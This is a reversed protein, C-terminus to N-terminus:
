VTLATTPPGVTRSLAIGPLVTFSQTSTASGSPGTIKIAGTKALTPVVAHVSTDSVISFAAAVGNFSVATAGTFGSGTLTVTTGLSGSTPSISTISPAAWAAGPLLVGVGVAVLTLALAKRHLRSMKCGWGHAPKAVTGCAPHCCSSRGM